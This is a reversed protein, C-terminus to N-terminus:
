KGRLREVVERITYTQFRQKAEDYRKNIDIFLPWYSIFSKMSHQISKGERTVFACNNSGSLPSGALHYLLANHDKAHPDSSEKVAMPMGSRLWFELYIGLTPHEFGSTGTYALGSRVPVHALFMRSDGFIVERQELLFFANQLFAERDPDPESPTTTRPRSKKGVSLYAGSQDIKLQNDVPEGWQEELPWCALRRGDLLLISNGEVARVEEAETSNTSRTEAKEGQELPTIDQIEEKKMDICQQTRHRLYLFLIM